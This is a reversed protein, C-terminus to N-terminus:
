KASKVQAKQNVKTDDRKISHLYKPKTSQYKKWIWVVAVIVAIYFLTDSM